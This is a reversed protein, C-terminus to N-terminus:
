LMKGQAQLCILLRPCQRMNSWNAGQECFAITAWFIQQGEQNQLHFLKVVPNPHNLHLFTCSKHLFVKLGQSESLVHLRHHCVAPCFTRLLWLLMLHSLSILCPVVGCAQLGLHGMAGTVRVALHQQTRLEAGQCGLRSTRSSSLSPVSDSRARHGLLPLDSSTQARTLIATAVVGGYYCTAAWHCWSCGGGGGAGGWGVLPQLHCCKCPQEMFGPTVM